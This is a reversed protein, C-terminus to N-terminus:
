ISSHRLLLVTLAGHNCLDQLMYGIDRQPRATRGAYLDDRQANYLDVAQQASAGVDDVHVIKNDQKTNWRGFYHLKGRIKKAWRGSDHPFLPFDKYPKDPKSNAKRSRISRSSQRTM